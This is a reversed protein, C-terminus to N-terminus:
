KAVREKARRVVVAGWGPWKMCDIAGGHEPDGTQESVWQNFAECEVQTMDDMVSKPENSQGVLLTLWSQVEAQQGAPLDSMKQEVPVPQVSFKRKRDQM